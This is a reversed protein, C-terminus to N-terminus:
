AGGKLAYGVVFAVVAAIVAAIISDWRKSPKDKIQTIDVKIDALTSLIQGQVTDSKGQAVATQKFLDYFEKHQASNREKDSELGIIRPEMPCRDCDLAM